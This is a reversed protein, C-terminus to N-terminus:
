VGAGKWPIVEFVDIWCGAIVYGVHRSEGDQTERYMKDAHKRGLRDLLDKRPHQLGHYYQGYQDVGMYLRKRKAM